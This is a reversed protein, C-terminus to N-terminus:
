VKEKVFYTRIQTWVKTTKNPPLEQRNRTKDTQTSLILSEHLQSTTVKQWSFSM